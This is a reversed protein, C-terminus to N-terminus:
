TDGVAAIIDEQLNRTQKLVHSGMVILFPLVIM